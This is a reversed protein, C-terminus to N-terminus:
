SYPGQGSKQELRPSTQVGLHRQRLGQDEEEEEDEAEEEEDEEDEEEDEVDEEQLV